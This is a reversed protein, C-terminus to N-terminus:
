QTPEASREGVPVLAAVCGRGHAPTHQRDRRVPNRVHARRTRERQEAQDDPTGRAVPREDGRCPHQQEARGREDARRRGIAVDDGLLPDPEREGCGSRRIPSDNDPDRRGSGVDGGEVAGHGADELISLRHSAALDVPDGPRSPEDCGPQPRVDSGPRSREPRRSGSRGHGSRGSKGRGGARGGLLVPRCRSQGRICADLAMGAQDLAAPRIGGAPRGGCRRDVRREGGSGRRAETQLDALLDPQGVREIGALRRGDPEHADPLAVSAIGVPEVIAGVEVADLSATRVEDAAGEDDGIRDEGRDVQSRGSVDFPAAQRSEIM